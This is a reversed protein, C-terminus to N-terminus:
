SLLLPASFDAPETTRAQPKASSKGTARSLVPKLAKAVQRHVVPGLMEQAAGHEMASYVMETRGSDIETRTAVIEILTDAHASVATLMARDIFLPERCITGGTASSFPAHDAIWLLIKKGEIQDLLTRMRAVWACQMEHRVLHLRDPGIRALSSLMHSTLDFESFDVEPYIDKFRKSARLFRENHRPDVTYFRNSMNAAGMVQIVTAQSM